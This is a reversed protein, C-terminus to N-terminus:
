RRRRALGFGMVGLAMSAAPAPVRTFTVNDFIAGDRDTLLEIRRIGPVNVALTRQYFWPTNYGLTNASTFGIQVGNVDLARVSGLFTGSETDAMLVSFDSVDADFTLTVTNSWMGATRNGFDGLGFAFVEVSNHFVGNSDFAAGSTFHVGEGAYQEAVVAPAALGEFNITVIDACAVGSAGAVALAALACAAKM